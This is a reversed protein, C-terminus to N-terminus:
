RSRFGAIREETDAIPYGTAAEYALGEPLSLREAARYLDKYAALSGRSNAAIGEAISGVSDDLEARPFARAVLGWDAAERGTTSTM